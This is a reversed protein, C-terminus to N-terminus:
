ENNTDEKLMEELEDSIVELLSMNDLEQIQEEAWDEGLEHKRAQRDFHEYVRQYLNM